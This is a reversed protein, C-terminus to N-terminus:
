KFERHLGICKADREHNKLPFTKMITSGPTKDAVPFSESNTIELLSCSCKKFNNYQGIIYWCCYSPRLICFFDSIKELCLRKFCVLVCECVCVQSCLRLGGSRPFTEEQVGTYFIFFITRDHHFFFLHPSSCTLDWPWTGAMLVHIDLTIPRKFTM